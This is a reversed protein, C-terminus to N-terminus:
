RSAEYSQLDTIWRRGHVEIAAGLSRGNWLDATSDLIFTFYAFLFGLEGLNNILISEDFTYTHHAGGIVANAVPIDFSPTINIPQSLSVIDNGSDLTYGNVNAGSISVIRRAGLISASVSVLGPSKPTVYLHVGGNLKYYLASTNTPSAGELVIGVDVRYLGNGGLNTRASSVINANYGLLVRHSGSEDYPTINTIIQTPLHERNQTGAWTTLSSAHNVLVRNAINATFIKTKNDKNDYFHM